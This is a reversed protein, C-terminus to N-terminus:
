GGMLLVIFMQVLTLLFIMGRMSNINEHFLIEVIDLIQHYIPPRSAAAVFWDGRVYPIKHGTQRSCYSAAPYSQEVNYPCQAIIMDWVTVTADSSQVDWDYDRLDIRFITKNPDIPKPIVIGRNWSLSNVLKSLGLRYTQIDDDRVGANYLHTLTFYRMYRRDRQAIKDRLDSQMFGLM